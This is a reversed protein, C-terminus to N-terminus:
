LCLNSDPRPDRECYVWGEEDCCGIRTPTQESGEFHACLIRNGTSCYAHQKPAATWDGCNGELDACPFSMMVFGCECFGCDGRPGFRVTGGEPVTCTTVFITTDSPLCKDGMVDCAEDSTQGDEPNKGVDNCSHLSLPTSLIIMLFLNGLVHLMSIRNTM